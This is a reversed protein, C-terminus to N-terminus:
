SKLTEGSTIFYAGCPSGISTSMGIRKGALSAEASRVTVAGDQIEPTSGFARGLSNGGSAAALPTVLPRPIALHMTAASPVIILQAGSDASGSPSLKESAATFSAEVMFIFRQDASAPGTSPPKTCTAM